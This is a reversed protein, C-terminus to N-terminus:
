IRMLSQLESTHEESRRQSETRGMESGHERVHRAAVGFKLNLGVVAIAEDIEDRLTIIARYPDAVELIGVQDGSIDPRDRAPEDCARVIDARIPHGLRRVFDDAMLGEHLAGFGPLEHIAVFDKRNM